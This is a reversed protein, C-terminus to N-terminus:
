KAKELSMVTFTSGVKEATFTVKDGAKVTALMTPDKVAFVMTMAPMDLNKIDGHKLTIKQNDLDIKRIEAEATPLVAQAFASLSLLVTAISMIAKKM